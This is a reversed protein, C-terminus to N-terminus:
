LRMLGMMSWYRNTCYLELWVIMLNPTVGSDVSKRATRHTLLQVVPLILEILSNLSVVRLKKIEQRPLGLKTVNDQGGLQFKLL